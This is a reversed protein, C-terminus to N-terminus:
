YYPSAMVKSDTTWEFEIQHKDLDSFYQKAEEATSTGLGKYYKIKWQKAEEESLSNKWKEYESFILGTFM